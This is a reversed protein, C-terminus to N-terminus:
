PLFQHTSDLSRAVEEQDSLSSLIIRSTRPHRRKVERILEVGSMGPMRMDSVVVDFEILELIRLAEHPHDATTVQWQDREDELMMAYMELLLSNDEVFLIRKPM